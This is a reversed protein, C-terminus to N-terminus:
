WETKGRFQMYNDHIKQSYGSEDQLNYTELTTKTCRYLSKIVDKPFYRIPVNMKNELTRRYTQNQDIYDQYIKADYKEIVATLKAQIQAPLKNYADYNILLEFMTNPEQWGPEYYFAGLTHLGLRYDDYPGIWEAADLTGNQIAAFIESPLQSSPLINFCNKMVEGGLGAIRMRLHRLDAGSHIEKKFWGGMQNGTHGCSFPRANIHYQVYLERWLNLGGNDLWQKVEGHELGFPVSGFYVAAPIENKWYYAAAHVAQIDGNSVAHLLNLPNSMAIVNGNADKPADTLTILLQGDTQVAIEKLMKEINAQLLPLNNNWTTAIQWRHVGGETDDSNKSATNEMKDSLLFKFCFFFAGVIMFAAILRGLKLDM